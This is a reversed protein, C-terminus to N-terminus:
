KTLTKSRKRIQRVDQWTRELIKVVEAGPRRGGYRVAAYHETILTL